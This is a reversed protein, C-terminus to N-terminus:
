WLLQEEYYDIKKKSFNDTVLAKGSAARVDRNVSDPGCSIVATDDELNKLKDFITLKLKPRESFVVSIRDFQNSIVSRLIDYTPEMGSEKEKINLYSTAEDVSTRTIYITLRIENTKGMQILEELSAELTNITPTCWFVEICDYRKGTRLEEAHFQRALDTVLTYIITIGIGAAVFISNKYNRFAIPTGYPGELLIPIRARHNEQKQIYKALAKTLGDKVRIIITLQDVNKENSSRLVTFPHSQWFLNPLLFYVFVFCGPYDRWWGSHSITIRLSHVTQNENSTECDKISTQSTPLEESNKNEKSYIMIRKLFSERDEIKEKKNVELDIEVDKIIRKEEATNIDVIAECDAMVVGGSLFIKSMRLIHDFGWIAVTAYLFPMWGLTKCHYWTGIVFFISLLQHSLKFFEYAYKRFIKFSFIILIGGCILATNAWKWKQLLWREVYDNNQKSYGVYCCAHILILIWTFTAIYRHYLNFTRISWGTIIIFINNRGAFLFMLPFQTIALIGTRDAIYVLLGCSKYKFITNPYNIHFDIASFLVILCFYLFIVIFQIRTPLHKVVYSLIKGNRTIREKNTNRSFLQPNILHRQVWRSFSSNLSKTIQPICWVGMNNVFAIMIILGWYGLLVAGLVTAVYRHRLLNHVSQSSVKYLVPDPLVPNYLKTTIESKPIAHKTANEFIMILDTFNYQQQAQLKCFEMVYLYSHTIDFPSQSNDDICMLVTGLFSKDRCRCQYALDPQKCDFPYLTFNNAVYLCASGLSSIQNLGFIGLSSVTFLLYNSIILLRLLKM